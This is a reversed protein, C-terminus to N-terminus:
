FGRLASHSDYFYHFFHMLKDNKKLAFFSIKYRKAFKPCFYKELMANQLLYRKGGGGQKKFWIDIDVNLSTLLSCQMTCESFSVGVFGLFNCFIDNLTARYYEKLFTSLVLM